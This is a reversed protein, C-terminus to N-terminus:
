KRTMVAGFFEDVALFWEPFTYIDNHSAGQVEVLRSWKFIAYSDHKICNGLLNGQSQFMTGATGSILYKDESDCINSTNKYEKMLARGHSYPIEKDDTGHLILLPIHLSKVAEINSYKFVLSNYRNLFLLM